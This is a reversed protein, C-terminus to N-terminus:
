TCLGKKNPRATASSALRGWNARTMGIIWVADIVLYVANM